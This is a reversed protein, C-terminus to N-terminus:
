VTIRTIRQQPGFRLVLDSDVNTIQKVDKQLYVGVRYSNIRAWFDVCDLFVLRSVVQCNPSQGAKEEANEVFFLDGHAIGDFVSSSWAKMRTMHTGHYISIHQEGATRTLSDLFDVLRLRGYDAHLSIYCWFLKSTLAISMVSSSLSGRYCHRRVRRLYLMDGVAQHLYTDIIQLQIELPLNVM